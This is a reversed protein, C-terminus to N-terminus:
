CLDDGDDDNLNPAGGGGGGAGGAGGGGGGSSPGDNLDVEATARSSISKKIRLCISTTWPDLQSISDFQTIKQTYEEADGNALADCADLLFQCERQKGFTVDYDKYSEIFSRSEELDKGSAMRCLGAHFFYKKASYKLLNNQAADKGVQEFIKIASDFDNLHQASHAAVKLNCTNANSNQNDMKFFDAAQKLARIAKDFEFESEHIEGIERYHKAAAGMRNSDMCMEAAASYAAVAEKPSVQKYCDGAEKYANLEDLKNTLIHHMEACKSFSMGARDFQKAVKYAVGASRYLEAAEEKYSNGGFWARKVAMKEAKDFDGAAKRAQAAIAEAEM